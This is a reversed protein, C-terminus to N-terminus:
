TKYFCLIFGVEWIKGRAAGYDYKGSKGSGNKGQNDGFTETVVQDDTAM